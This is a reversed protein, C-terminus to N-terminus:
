DTESGSSVRHVDSDDDYVKPKRVKKIPAEDKDACATAPTSIHVASTSTASTSAAPQAPVASTSAPAPAPPPIVTPIASGAATAVTEMIPVTYASPDEGGRQQKQTKPPDSHHCNTPEEQVSGMQPNGSPPGVGGAGTDNIPGMQAYVPHTGMSHDSTIIRSSIHSIHYPSSAVTMRHGRQQTRIPGVDPDYHHYQQGMQQPGQSHHTPQFPDAFPVLPFPLPPPLPFPLLLSLPSPLPLPPDSFAPLVWFPLWYQSSDMSPALPLSELLSLDSMGM